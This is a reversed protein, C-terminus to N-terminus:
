LPQRSEALLLIVDVVAVLLVLRFPRRSPGPRRGSFLAAGVLSASALGSGARLAGPGKGAFALVGTAALLCGGMLRLSGSRGLRHPLGIVGAVQDSHLDPLVNAVHAGAGLLAAASVTWWPALRSTPRALTVFSPLLGFSVVYPAISFVTAKLGLNYAYGSAVATLHAMGARRGSLLSLPVCAGASVVAAAMLGRPEIQGRAAPKDLRGAAKDRRVDLADNQWGISLQGALVAGAICATTRTSRRACKAYLAAITTVAAVPGPHCSGGLALLPRLATATGSPRREVDGTGTLSM